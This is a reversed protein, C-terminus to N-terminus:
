GKVPVQLSGDDLAPRIKVLLGNWLLLITTPPGFATANKPIRTRSKRCPIFFGFRRRPVLSKVNGWPM